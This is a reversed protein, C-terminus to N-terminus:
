GESDPNGGASARVIGYHAMLILAFIGVVTIGAAPALSLGTTAAAFLLSLLTCAVTALAKM